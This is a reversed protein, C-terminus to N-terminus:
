IVFHAAILSIASQARGRGNGGRTEEENRLEQEQHVNNGERVPSTEERANRRVKLSSIVTSHPSGGSLNRGARNSHKQRNNRLLCVLTISKQVEAADKLKNIKPFEEPQRIVTLATLEITVRM